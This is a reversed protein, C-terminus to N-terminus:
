LGVAGRMRQFFSNEEVAGGNKEVRVGHWFAVRDKIQSAAASPQAYYWAADKNIEDGVLVDYNSAEGKSPCTTHTTSARLYEWSISDPPFYHNGEVMVTDNSEALIADNWIAKPM